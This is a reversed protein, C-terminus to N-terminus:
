QKGNAEGKAPTKTEKNPTKNTAKAPTKTEILGVTRMNEGGRKIIFPPYAGGM